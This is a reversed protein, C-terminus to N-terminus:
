RVFSRLANEVELPLKYSHAAVYHIVLNPLIYRCNSDEIFFQGHGKAEGCIECTHSGLSHDPLQNQRLAHGLADLLGV